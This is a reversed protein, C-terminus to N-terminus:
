QETITNKEENQRWERVDILRNKIEQIEKLINTWIM